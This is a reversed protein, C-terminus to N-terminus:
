NRWAGLELKRELDRRKSVERTKRDIAKESVHIDELHWPVMLKVGTSMIRGFVSVWEDLMHIISSM